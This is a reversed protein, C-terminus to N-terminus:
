RSRAPKRSTERASSNRPALPGSVHALSLKRSTNGPAAGLLARALRETEALSLLWAPKGGGRGHPYVTAYNTQWRVVVATGARGCVREGAGNEIADFLLEALAEADPVQLIHADGKIILQKFDNRAVLLKTTECFIEAIGSM